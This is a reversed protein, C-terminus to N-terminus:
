FKDWFLKTEVQDGGISSAASTYNTGNLTQENAPYTLRNPFGSRATSPATLAPYDLRRVETWAEYPRNFLAIWFQTGIKQRYNGAATNYAVAAQALYAD